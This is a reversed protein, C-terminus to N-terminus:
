TPKDRLVHGTHGTQPPSIVQPLEVLEANMYLPYESETTNHPSSLSLEGIVCIKEAKDVYCSRRKGAHARDRTVIICGSAGLHVWGDM